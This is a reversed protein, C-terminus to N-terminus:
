NALLIRRVGSESNTLLADRAVGGGIAALYLEQGHLTITRVAVEGGRLLPPLRMGFISKALIPAVAALEACVSGEGAEAVVFGGGDALVLAELGGRDLTHELQFRLAIQSEPSRHKRREALPLNM